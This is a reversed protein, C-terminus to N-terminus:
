GAKSRGLRWAGALALAGLGVVAIRRRLSTGEDAYVKAEGSAITAAACGRCVEVGARVKEGMEVPVMDRVRGCALHFGDVDSDVIYHARGTGIDPWNFRVWRKLAM